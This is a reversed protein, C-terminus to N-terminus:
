KLSGERLSNDSGTLCLSMAATAATCAMGWNVTFDLKSLMRQCAQARLGSCLIEDWGGDGRWVSCRTFRTFASRTM